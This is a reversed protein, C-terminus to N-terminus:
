KEFYSKLKLRRRKWLVFLLNMSLLLLFITNVRPFERVVTTTTTPECADGIGDGNRDTQDPNPVRPCNDCADGIRDNDFDAQYPNNVTPCTDCADGVRDYDSDIQDNNSTFPCNDEMDGIRDTDSDIGIPNLYFTYEVLYELKPEEIKDWYFSTDIVLAESDFYGEKKAFIYAKASYRPPPMTFYLAGDANKRIKFNMSLYDHPPDVVMKVEFESVDVPTLTSSDNVNVIIISGPRLPMAERDPRAADGTYGVIEGADYIQNGNADSFHGHSIFLEDLNDIGDYDADGTLDPRTLADLTLYIDRVNQHDVDNIQMWIENATLSIWDNDAANVGDHLDWLLGAVAMEEPTTWAEQNWELNYYCPNQGNFNGMAYCSPNPDGTDEAILCSIYEAFGEIWSDSTCHNPYGGHIADGGHRTPWGNDGGILSDAMIHHSFEHWERNDPRNGSSFYSDISPIHISTVPSCLISSLCYMTRQTFPSGDWAIVEVPLRHDFGMGLTNLAFDIAQYTHFYIIAADSLFDIANWITMPLTDANINPNNSLDVNQELDNLTNIMFNVTEAFIPNATTDEYVQIYPDTGDGEDELTVRLFGTIASGIFFTNDNLMNIVYEGNDDTYVTYQTGGWDLTVMIHPLKHVVRDHDTTTITGHLFFCKGASGANYIAEIEDNQLARNYFTLEDILGVFPLSLILDSPPNLELGFGLDVTGSISNIEVEVGNLYLRIDQGDYTAAVHHYEQDTIEAIVYHHQDDIQLTFILLFGAMEKGGMLTFMAKENLSLFQIEDLRYHLGTLKMWFEITLQQLDNIHTGSAEVSTDVGFNFAQGVKGPLFEINGTFHDNGIIDNSSGDGPWWSVLGSPPDVCGQDAAWPLNAPISGDGPWWSVLGSPPDVCGQDAAWPLNAPISGDGRGQTMLVDMHRKLMAKPTFGHFEQSTYQGVEGKGTILYMTPYGSISFANVVQPNEAGNIWLFAIKDEYETELEKIIPTQRQCFSCWDAYFFLVVPQGLRLYNDIQARLLSMVPPTASVKSSSPRGYESYQTCISSGLTLDTVTPFGTNVYTDPAIVHEIKAGIRDVSALVSLFLVFLLLQMILNRKTTPDLRMKVM